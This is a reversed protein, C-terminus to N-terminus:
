TSKGPHRVPSDHDAPCPGSGSRHASAPGPSTSAPEEPCCWSDSPTSAPQPTPARGFTHLVIVTAATVIAAALGSTYASANVAGALQSILGTLVAPMGMGLYCAAFFTSVVAARHRPEALRNLETLGGRFILGAAIGGAITGALFLWLAKAYLASELAALCILLLPLGASMSRRAPLRASAAQSVAATIFILCSTAGILALNHVGLIGHLFTPVLSGFFGLTSFAAFAGLCTGLMAARMGPPAALRPGVKIVRDPDRVTEPIAAVAALPGAGLGTMNSGSAAVAAARRDGRPQLEALAAAATGTVFGAALGGVIRATILLGAGTAVLFLATAAAASAVAIALVKRRGVHDSLDGMTLLVLVTGVVFAAFVVTVGLPGFGMQREYLVYLPIPLTGGAMTVLLVGAALRYGRRKSSAPISSAASGTPSATTVLHETACSESRSAAVAAHGPLGSGWSSLRRHWGARALGATPMSGPVSM